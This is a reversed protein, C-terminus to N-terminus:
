RKMHVEEWEHMYSDPVHLRIKHEPEQRYYKYYCIGFIFGVVIGSLHAIDGTTSPNFIGFVAVGVWVLAAIFMPMPLGYVWMTMKPRLVTLMGLIGYIAGSAGLSSSYFNVAVLNAFIGSAFYVILFKNSGIVKELILGFLILAFLNLLIHEISAHLFISTVFRWPQTWSHGDLVLADTFGPMTSQFIFMIICAAAIWLTYFKM